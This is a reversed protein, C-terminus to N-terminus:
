YGAQWMMIVGKDHDGVIEMLSFAFLLNGTTMKSPGGAGNSLASPERRRSVRIDNPQLYM